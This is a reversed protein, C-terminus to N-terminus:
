RSGTRREFEHRVLERQTPSLRNSHLLNRVEGVPLHPLFLTFWVAPTKRNKLIALRLNPRNQWRQHRAIQSITEAKATAGNLFQLIAVERLRPSDLCVSVIKEDGEKLLAAVLSPTGRRALTLKQGLETTPLRQLIVREAALQQDPTTTPQLCLTLLEFLFLRPLLTLVIEGPTAPHGALAVQLRHSEACRELQYIAKVLDEPLDRRKLLALLHEEGLDPNKLLARLVEASPNLIVQFIEADRATLAAHLRQALGLSLTTEAPSPM